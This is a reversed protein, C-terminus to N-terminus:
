GSGPRKAKLAVEARLAIKEYSAAVAFMAEKADPDVIQDAVARSEEARKRWYEPSGFALPM